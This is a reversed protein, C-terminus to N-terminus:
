FYGFVECVALSRSHYYKKYEWLIFLFPSFVLFSLRIHRGMKSIKENYFWLDYLTRVLVLFSLLGLFTYWVPL